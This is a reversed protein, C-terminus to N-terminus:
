LANRQKTEEYEPANIQCWVNVVLQMHQSKAKLTNSPTWKWVSHVIAWPGRLGETRPWHLLQQVQHLIYSGSCLTLSSLFHKHDFLPVNEFFWGIFCFRDNTMARWFYESSVGTSLNGDNCIVREFISCNESRVYSHNLNQETWACAFVVQKPNPLM